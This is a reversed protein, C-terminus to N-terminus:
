NETTETEIPEEQLTHTKNLSYALVIEAPYYTSLCLIGFIRPVAAFVNFVLMFDSFFFLCSGVVLLINLINKEKILNSISKGVMLSIIAAYVLCVIQMFIGGFDFLKVFLILCASPVFICASPILNKLEFKQLTCYAVFYFIHGVAFLAAGVVFEIELLIDGLMAFFLGITMIICFKKLTTQNKIAIALNVAGLLVFLISATSKILLGGVTMYLIDGIIIAIMLAINSILQFKKM